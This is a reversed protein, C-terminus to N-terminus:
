DRLLVQVEKIKSADYKGPERERTTGRGEGLKGVGDGSRLSVRWSNRKQQGGHRGRGRRGQYSCKNEHSGIGGTHLVGM